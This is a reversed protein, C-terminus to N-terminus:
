HAGPGAWLIKADRWDDALISWLVQDHHEGARLFSRCLVGEHVAGIKRLAGNGRGNRVAARSELRFTGVVEFSFDVVMKAADVFVGSGWYSSALAFGWEAVGFRSDLARVQFLGVATDTGHPVVAFCVHRGRARQDITWGIFRAFGEVTTPPPSIFRAVEATTLFTFLPAADDPRLERLTVRYGTLVPLASRWDSEVLAPTRDVDIAAASEQLGSVIDAARSMVEM